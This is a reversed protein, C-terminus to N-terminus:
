TRTLRLKFSYINSSVASNIIFIGDDAYFDKMAGSFATVAGGSRLGVYGLFKLFHTSVATRVFSPSTPFFGEEVLWKCLFDDTKYRYDFESDESEIHTTGGQCQCLSFKLDFLGLRLLMLYMTELLMHSTPMGKFMYCKIIRQHTVRDTCECPRQEQHPINEPVAGDQIASVYRLYPEELIPLLAEFAKAFRQELDIASKAPLVDVQQTALKTKSTKEPSLVYSQTAYDRVYDGEDEYEMHEHIQTETEPAPALPPTLPPQPPQSSTSATSATNHAISDIGANFIRTLSELRATVAARHEATKYGLSSQPVDVAKRKTPSPLTPLEIDKSPILGRISETNDKKKKKPAM